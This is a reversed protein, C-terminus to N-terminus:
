GEEGSGSRSSEPASLMERLWLVTQILGAAVAIIGLVAGLWTAVLTAALFIVLGVVVVYVVVRFADRESRFPNRLPESPQGSQMM